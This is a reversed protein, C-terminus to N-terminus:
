EEAHPATKSNDFTGIVQQKLAHTMFLQWHNKEENNLLPIHRQYQLVSLQINIADACTYHM